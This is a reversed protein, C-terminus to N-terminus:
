PLFYPPGASWRPFRPIFERKDIVWSLFSSILSIILAGWVASWFGQVFLGHTVKSVLYLLSGNIILTFLGLTLINLPLTLLLLVPRVLANFLGLIAAAVIAGKIGSVQLGKLLHAAILIAATNAAWRLIIGMM